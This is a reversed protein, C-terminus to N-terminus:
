ICLGNSFTDFEQWLWQAPRFSSCPVLQPALTLPLPVVVDDNTMAIRAAIENIWELISGYQM